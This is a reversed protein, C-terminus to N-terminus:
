CRGSRYAGFLMAHDNRSPLSGANGNGDRRMVILADRISVQRWRRRANTVTSPTGQYAAGRSPTATPAPAAPQRATTRRSLWADSMRLFGLPDLEYLRLMRMGNSQGARPGLWQLYRSERLAAAGLRVDLLLLKARQRGTTPQVNLVNNVWMRHLTQSAFRKRPAFGRAMSRGPLTRHVVRRQGPPPKVPFKRERTVQWAPEAPGAPPPPEAPAAVEAAEDAAEIM